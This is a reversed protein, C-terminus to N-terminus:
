GQGIGRRSGGQGSNCEGKHCKKLLEKGRIDQLGRASTTKNEDAKFQTDRVCQYGFQKEPGGCIRYARAEWAVVIWGTSAKM